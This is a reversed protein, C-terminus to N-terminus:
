NGGRREESSAAPTTHSAELRGPTARRRRRGNRPPRAVSQPFGAVPPATVPHSSSRTESKAAPAVGYPDLAAPPPRSGTRRAQRANRRLGRRAPAAQAGRSRYPVRPPLAPHARAAPPP